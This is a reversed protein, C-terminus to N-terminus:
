EEKGIPNKKLNPIVNTFFESAAPLMIFIIEILFHLHLPRILDLPLVKNWGM